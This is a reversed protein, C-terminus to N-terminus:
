NSQSAPHFLMLLAVVLMVAMRAFNQEHIAESVLYGSLGSAATRHADKMDMLRRKANGETKM